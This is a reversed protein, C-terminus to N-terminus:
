FSALSAKCVECGQSLTSSRTAVQVQVDDVDKDRRGAGDM